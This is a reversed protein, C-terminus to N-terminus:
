KALKSLIKHNDEGIKPSGKNSKLIQGNIRIPCRTTLMKVNGQEIEQVFDLVKFGEHAFLEPWDLVNSCWVQHSSLLGLWYDSNESVFHKALRAYIYSRESYWLRSDDMRALEDLGLIEGLKNIAFSAIAFYGNQSQYIGYPASMYAHANLESCRSPRADGGNLYNSFVEFQLDVLAELLSVEVLGGRKTKGRRVLLALIGQVLQYSASLDAIALGFPTPADSANGNLWTLGSMCQALLDQGPKSRLSSQNNGYGSVSAYILQPNIHKLSEYDLGLREIVGPRFNQIMVDASAILELALQHDVPDKLDLSVGEKNRNIAHFITSDGEIKQKAIYLSRCIDGGEPREVKIVRAGLDALRLAASPGSLFQSFDLVTLGNLLGDSQATKM